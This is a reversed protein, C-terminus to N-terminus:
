NGRGCCEGYWKNSGCPCPEEDAVITLDFPDLIPIMLETGPTSEVEMELESGKPVLYGYVSLSGERDIGKQKEEESFGYLSWLPIKDALDAYVNMFANMYRKQMMKNMGIISEATDMFHMGTQLDFWVSMFQGNALHPHKKNISLLYNYFAKSADDVPNIYPMQGYALVVDLPFFKDGRHSENKYQDFWEISRLSPHIIMVDLQESGKDDIRTQHALMSQVLYSNELYATIADNMEDTGGLFYSIRGMLDGLEVSGYLNLLGIVITEITESLPVCREAMVDDICPVIAAAIDSPLFLEVHDEHYTEINLLKLPFSPCFLYHGEVRIAEGSKCDLLMQVLKLEFLSVRSLWFRPNEIVEHYLTDAYEKKKLTQRISLGMFSSVSILDKKSMMNVSLIYDVKSLSRISRCKKM